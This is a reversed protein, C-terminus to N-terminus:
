LADRQARYRRTWALTPGSKLVVRYDGHFWPQLERIADLRVIESRSIRAFQRPDLRRGLGALTGRRLYCGDATRLELYNGRARIVEVRDLPLLIEHNPQAEVRLRRLLGPRNEIDELARQLNAALETGRRASLRDEVRGIVDALRAATFPKLLYDVAHVEFARLAHEDHATVFVVLPARGPGLADVVGFGDRRPMRIDLFVLDPSTREIERVAEDGDAAEGVIQVGPHRSLLLRLKQRAPREDDAILARIM